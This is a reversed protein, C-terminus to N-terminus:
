TGYQKMIDNERAHTMTVAISQPISIRRMPYKQKSETFLRRETNQVEPTIRITPTTYPPATPPNSVEPSIMQYM